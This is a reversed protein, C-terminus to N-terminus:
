KLFLTMGRSSVTMKIEFLPDDSEFRPDDIMDFLFADRGKSIVPPSDNRFSDTMEFNSDDKM